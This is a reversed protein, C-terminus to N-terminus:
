QRAATKVGVVKGETTQLGGHEAGHFGQPLGGIRQRKGVQGGTEFLHHGINQHLAAKATGCVM